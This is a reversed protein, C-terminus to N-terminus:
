PQQDFPVAESNINMRAGPDVTILEGRHEFERLFDPAEWYAYRIRDPMGAVDLALMRYEGPPVGELLFAAVENAAVAPFGGLSGRRNVPPILIVRADPILAGNSDRAVGEIRAAGPAVVIELTSVRGGGVVLGDKLVDQGGSRASAVYWGNPMDSRLLLINHVLKYTGHALAAVDFTGDAAASIVKAPASADTPSFAFAPLDALEIMNGPTGRDIILRGSVAPHVDRAVTGLDLDGDELTFRFKAIPDLQDWDLDPYMEKLYRPHSLRIEYEGAYLPATRYVDDGLEELGVPEEPSVILGHGLFRIGALVVDNDPCMVREYRGNETDSFCRPTRPQAPGSLEPLPLHFRVRFTADAGLSVDMGPVEAGGWVIIPISDEVAPVGPYFLPQSRRPMVRLYYEGPPTVISYRGDEDTVVGRPTNLVTVHTRGGPDQVLTMLDVAAGGAPEGDPGRVQGSIRVRPVMWAEIDPAPGSDSLDVRKRFTNRPDDPFFLRLEYQGPALGSFSFRGNENSTAISADGVVTGFINLEPGLLEVSIGAVPKRSGPVMVTGHIALSDDGDDQPEALQFALSAGGARSVSLVFCFAILRLGISGM